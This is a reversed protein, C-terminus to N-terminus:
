GQRRRLLVECREGILVPRGDLELYRATRGQGARFAAFRTRVDAEPVGSLQGWMVPDLRDPRTRMQLIELGHAPAMRTWWDSSLIRRHAPDLLKFCEDLLDAPEAWDSLVLRAGPRTVRALESLVQEPDAFYRFGYRCVAWDFLGDAFEMRHADQTTIVVNNILREVFRAAALKLMRESLDAALIRSGCAALEATLQGTGAALDLGTEDRDAQLLRLLHKGEGKADLYECSSWENALHDFHGSLNAPSEFPTM